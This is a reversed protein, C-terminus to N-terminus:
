RRPRAKTAAADRPTALIGWQELMVRIAKPQLLVVGLGTGSTNTIIDTMGSYRQPVYAQLIEITLSTLGGMVIAQLAAQRGSHRRALYLYLLMGLPMFGVINRVLDDVYIWFPAIEKWPPSLFEKHPVQFHEPIELDPQGSAENHVITGSREAFFYQALANETPDAPLGGSETWEFFHRHVRQADLEQGYLALGSIDGSWVDYNFPATGLLLEGAFNSAYIHYAPATQALEGNLYIKTGGLGSTITILTAHGRRFVHEVDVEASSVHNQADEFRRFILLGQSYQRLEFPLFDNGAYFSLFTHVDGLFQARVLIEVSCPQGDSGAEAHFNGSSSIM